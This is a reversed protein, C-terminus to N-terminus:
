EKKIKQTDKYYFFIAQTTVIMEAFERTKLMCFFFHFM